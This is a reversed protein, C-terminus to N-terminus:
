LSASPRHDSRQAALGSVGLGMMGATLGAGLYGTSHVAASDGGAVSLRDDYSLSHFTGVEAWGVELDHLPPIWNSNRVVGLDVVRANWSEM